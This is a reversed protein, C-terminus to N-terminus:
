SSTKVSATTNRITDIYTQAQNLTKFSIGEEIRELEVNNLDLGLLATRREITPEFWLVGGKTGKYIVVQSESVKAGNQMEFAVFFGERAYHGVLSVVTLLVFLFSIFSKILKLLSTSSSSKQLLNQKKEGRQLTNFSSAKYATPSTPIELLVLSDSGQKIDVVVATVNDLGEANVATDVLVQSAMQPDSYKQLTEKITADTLENTLGDTCLLYRDGKRATIEWCDVDVDQHTGLSRTIVNRQPHNESESKTIKGERYMEEVLSHDQTIQHLQDDALVYIRSDGINVLALKSLGAPRKLQTIACLTTGMSFLAPNEKARNNVAINANLVQKALEKTTIFRQKRFLEKIAIESAVEGGNHGGMGDAVAIFSNCTGFYDQNKSRVNGIHTSGGWSLLEDSVSAPHFSRGKNM